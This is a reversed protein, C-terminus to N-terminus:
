SPEYFPRRIGSRPDYGLPETVKGLMIDRELRVRRREGEEAGSIEWGPQPEDYRKVSIGAKQPSLWAPLHGILSEWDSQGSGRYDVFNWGSFMQHQRRHGRSDVEAAGLQRWYVDCRASPYVFGAVGHSRLWAGVAQHFTHGGIGPFVLTPLLGLFNRPEAVKLYRTKSNGPSGQLYSEEELRVFHEFFWTQSEPNRLDIVDDIKVSRVTLPLQVEWTGVEEVLPKRLLIKRLTERERYETLRIAFKPTALEPYASRQGPSLLTSDHVSPYIMKVRYDGVREGEVSYYAMLENCLTGRDFGEDDHCVSYYRSPGLSASGSYRRLRGWGLPITSVGNGYYEVGLHEKAVEGRPSSPKVFDPFCLDLVERAQPSLDAIRLQKIVGTFTSTPLDAREHHKLTKMEEKKNTTTAEYLHTTLM